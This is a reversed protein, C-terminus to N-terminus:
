DTKPCLNQFGFRGFLICSQYVSRRFTLDALM